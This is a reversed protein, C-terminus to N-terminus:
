SLNQISQSPNLCQQSKKLWVPQDFKKLHIKRTSYAKTFILVRKLIAKALQTTEKLHPFFARLQDCNKKAYQVNM